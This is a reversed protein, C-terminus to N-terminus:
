RSAAPAGSRLRCVGRQYEAVGGVGAPKTPAAGPGRLNRRRTMTAVGALVAATALYKSKNTKM